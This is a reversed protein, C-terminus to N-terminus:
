HSSVRVVGLIEPLEIVLNGPVPRDAILVLKPKLVPDPDDVLAQRIGIRADALLMSAGAVVGLKSPDLHLSRFSSLTM